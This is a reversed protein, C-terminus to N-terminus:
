YGINKPVISYSTDSSPLINVVASQTHGSMEWVNLTGNSARHWILDETGDGNTDGNHVIQFDLNAFTGVWGAGNRQPRTGTHAGDPDEVDWYVVNGDTSNYWILDDDGDGDFDGIAKPTYNDNYYANLWDVDNVPDRTNNNFWWVVVSEFNALDTRIWWLDDDGDKDVDGLGVPLYSTQLFDGVWNQAIKANNEMEFVIVRGIDGRYWVLDDDGDADTDGSGVLSYVTNFTGLSVSSIESNNEIVSLKIDGDAVGGTRQWLYDVDNDGDFDGYGLLVYDPDTNSVAFINGLNASNELESVKVWVNDGRIWILDDDDDKDINSGTAAIVSGNLNPDTGNNYEDLNTFGDGDPDAASDDALPNLGHEVEWGDDMGDGDTDWTTRGLGNSNEYSDSLGDNDDDTDCASGTGDIDHDGQGANAVAICNDIDDMVLDGDSDTSNPNAGVSVEWNDGFGDGDSDATESPDMPFDDLHDAVTDEDSDTMGPNAGKQFEQLNTLADGDNNLSADTDNYPDLGYGTEWDDPMGDLDSDILLNVAYASGALNGGTM